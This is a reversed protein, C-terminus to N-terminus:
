LLGEGSESRIADSEVGVFANKPNRPSHQETEDNGLAGNFGVQLLNCGDGLHAWNLVDLHTWRTM